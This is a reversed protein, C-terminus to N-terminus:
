AGEPDPAALDDEELAKALSSDALAHYLPLGLVYLVVAEGLGTTVLGFLYMLPYSGDFAITTFPIAYFGLGRLILPLYAPVILANSLVPGLLALHPRRRLHYTISVGALTALSGFVVDLMGLMGAGSLAINAVNAIVCGLALGPVADATLLALVCAAESIRFQIPGWALGGLFLLAVLTLTAYLAAIMAIRTVHTPPLRKKTSNPSAFM